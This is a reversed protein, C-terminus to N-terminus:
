TKSFGADTFYASGLTGFGPFILNVVALLVAPLKDMKPVAQILSWVEKDHDDHNKFSQGVKAVAQGVSMPPQSNPPMGVRNPSSNLNDQM